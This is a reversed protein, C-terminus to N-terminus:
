ELGGILDKPQLKKLVNFIILSIVTLMLMAIILLELLLYIDITGYIDIINMSSYQKKILQISGNNELIYMIIAGVYSIISIFIVELFLSSFINLHSAGYAIRIGIERKKSYITVILSTILGISSFICFFIGIIMQSLNANIFDDIIVKLISDLKENKESLKLEQAKLNIKRSAEEYNVNDKLQLLLGRMIRAVFLQKDQEEDKNIPIILASSLNNLSSTIVGGQNYFYTNNKLFGIVKFQEQKDSQLTIIDGVKFFKEFISGLLINRMEDHNKGFDNSKFNSGNDLPLKVFENAGQDIILLKVDIEEIKDSIINQKTKNFINLEDVLNLRKSSNLASINLLKSGYAYTGFNKVDSNGKIYQYFASYDPQENGKLLTEIGTSNYMFSTKKTDAVSKFNYSFHNISNYFNAFTFLSSFGIIYQLVLLFTSIKRKSLSKFTEILASM